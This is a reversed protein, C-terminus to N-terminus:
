ILLLLLLLLWLAVVVSISCRVLKQFYRVDFRVMMLVVIFRIIAM